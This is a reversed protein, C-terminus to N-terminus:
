VSERGLNTLLYACVGVWGREGDREKEHVRKSKRM